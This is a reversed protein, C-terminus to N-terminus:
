KAIEAPREGDNWVKQSLIKGLQLETESKLCGSRYYARAIGDPKGLKMEIQESLQGNDHWSQFTGEVKGEVISARSLLAGNEHWKERPGNSIGNLYNEQVQMQGNTYWTESVGNLLGNSIQSRSFVAGAPYFDIMVGTFPNTEGSRHWRGEIQALERRPIELYPKHKPRHREHIIYLALAFLGLLALLKFATRNVLNQKLSM